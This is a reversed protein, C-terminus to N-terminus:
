RYETATISITVSVLEGRNWVEDFTADVSDITWKGGGIKHGGIVFPCVTGNQCYKIVKTKMKRPSVGHGAKIKMEFSATQNNPAEFERQPKKKYRKHDSYTASAAQKLNRFTRIKDESTEFIIDGFYGIM